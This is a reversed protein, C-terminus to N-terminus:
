NRQATGYLIPLGSLNLKKIDKISLLQEISNITDRNLNCGCALSKWIPNFTNFISRKIGRQHNVHEFFLLKGNSKLVRKIESLSKEQDNVTCLVLFSVVMDVSNDQLPIQEASANIIDVRKDQFNMNDIMGKSPELAHIKSVQDNYFPLNLGSGFGIELVNGKAHALLEYRYKNFKSTLFNNIRPFFIEEYFSMHFILM